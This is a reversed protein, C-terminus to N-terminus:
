GSQDAQLDSAGSRCRRAQGDKRYAMQLQYHVYDLNPSLRAAAELYSIADKTQGGDLLAKGLQYNAGPHDPAQSLVAKLHGIAEDTKSQRLLVYALSYENEVDGPSLAMEARFENAAEDNKDLRLYANGAMFHARQLQPDIELRKTVPQLPRLITVWTM